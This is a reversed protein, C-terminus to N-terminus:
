PWGDILFLAHSLQEDVSLYGYGRAIANHSHRHDRCTASFREGSIQIEVDAFELFEQYRPNVAKYVAEKCAFWCTADASPALALREHATLVRPLLKDQLRGPQEIDLGVGTSACTNALVVGVWQDTHSISGAIGSPWIPWRSESKEIAVPGLGFDALAERALSRGATFETRRKVGMPAAIIQEDPLLESFPASLPRLLSTIGDLQSFPSETSHTPM